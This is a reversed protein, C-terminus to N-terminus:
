LDIGGPHFTEWFLGISILLLVTGSAIKVIKPSLWRALGQGLLVALLSTSIVASAAGAFVVWPSRSQASLLLTAIQDADGMDALFITLFTSSFVAWGSRYPNYATSQHESSSAPAKIKEPSRTEDRRTRKEPLILRVALYAFGLAAVVKVLQLPLLEAVEGGAIAGLFTAMLLAGAAGLFVARPYKTNGSLAIAAISSKDAIEALFVTVYSLGLLHWDM